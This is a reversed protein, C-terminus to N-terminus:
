YIRLIYRTKALKMLNLNSKENKLNTKHKNILFLRRRSHSKSGVISLLLLIKLCPSLHHM